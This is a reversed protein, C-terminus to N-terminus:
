TLEGIKLLFVKKEVCIAQSYKESLIKKYEEQIRDTTM